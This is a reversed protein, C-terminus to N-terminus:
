IKIRVNDILRIEESAAGVRVAGFRRGKASTV